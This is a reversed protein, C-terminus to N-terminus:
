HLLKQVDKKAEDISHSGIEWEELSYYRRAGHSSGTIEMCYQFSRENCKWARYRAEERKGSQPFSLAVRGDGRAEWRFLEYSGKWSSSAAFMGMPQETVAGFAEITDTENKPMHDVWIRDYFIEQGRAVEADSRWWRWLLYAALVLLLLFLLKKM